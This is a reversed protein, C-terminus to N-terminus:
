RTMRIHKIPNYSFHIAGRFEDLELDFWCPNSSDEGFFKIGTKIKSYAPKEFTFNCVDLKFQDYSQEPFIIRPFMKPKPTYITDSKCASIMVCFLVLVSARLIM